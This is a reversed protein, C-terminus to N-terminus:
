AGASTQPLIRVVGPSIVSFARLMEQGHQQIARVVTQAKLAPSFGHLRILLVGATTLAQRFILEGFDKDATVLLSDASRSLALVLEDPTSPAAEAMYTVVHGEARLALVVSREIGEDAVLNM